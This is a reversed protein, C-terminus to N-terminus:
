LGARTRVEAILEACAQRTASEDTPQDFVAVWRVGGVGERLAIVVGENGDVDIAVALLRDADVRERVVRELRADAPVAVGRCGGSGDPWLELTLHDAGPSRDVTAIDSWAIRRWGSSQDRHLLGRDTAVTAGDVSGFRRQVKEGPGLPCRVATRM